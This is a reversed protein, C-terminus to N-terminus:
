PRRSRSSSAQPTLCSTAASSPGSGLSAAEVARRRGWGRAVRRQAARPVTTQSLQSRPVPPVEPDPAKGTWRATQTKAMVKSRSEIQSVEPGGPTAMSVDSGPSHNGRARRHPRSCCGPLPTSPPRLQTHGVMFCFSQPAPAQPPGPGRPGPRPFGRSSGATCNSSAVAWAELLAAQGRPLILWLPFPMPCPAPVRFELGSEAALTSHSRSGTM